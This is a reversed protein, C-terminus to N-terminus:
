LKELFEKPSVIRIRDYAGLALLHADGSVIYDAKGEIAALVYIDDSPDAAVITEGAPRDEVWVSLLSLATLFAEQEMPDLVIRRRLKPYKLVRRLEGLIAASVVAEFRGETFADLLKSPPGDPRILASVYVNCDLVARM